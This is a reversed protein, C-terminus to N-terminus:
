KKGAAGSGGNVVGNAGVVNKKSKEGAALHQKLTEARTLYENIKSRILQKSKDNKEDPHDVNRRLTPSRSLSDDVSLRLHCTTLTESRVWPLPIPSLTFSLVNCKLALMFYDLSNQYQRYAEPYNQKVDDDIARQV